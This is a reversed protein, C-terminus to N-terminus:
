EDVEGYGLVYAVAAWLACICLMLLAGVQDPSMM